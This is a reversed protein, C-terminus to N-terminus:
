HIKEVTFSHTFHLVHTKQTSIWTVAVGWTKERQVEARTHPFQPM